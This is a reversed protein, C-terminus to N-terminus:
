EDRLAVFDGEFAAAARGQYLLHATLTIRGRGRRAIMTLFRDWQAEDPADCIAAFDGEIPEDYSM